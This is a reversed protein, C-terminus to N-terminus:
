GYVAVASHTVEQSAAGNKNLHLCAKPRQMAASGLRFFFTLDLLSYSKHCCINHLDVAALDKILVNHLLAQGASGVLAQLVGQVLTSRQVDLHCVDNGAHHLAPSHLQTSGVVGVPELGQGADGTLLMIAEDAGHAVAGGDHLEGTLLQYAALGISGGEGGATQASGALCAAVGCPVGGAVGKHLIIHQADGSCEDAVGALSQIFLSGQQTGHVCQGTLGDADQLQEALIHVVDGGGNAGLLLVEQDLFLVVLSTLIQDEGAAGQEASGRGLTLLQLLVVEADDTGLNRREHLFQVLLQPLQAHGGLGLVVLNSGALVLKSGDEIGGVHGDVVVQQGHFHHALDCGLVTQDAQLVLLGKFAHVAAALVVVPGHAGGVLVQQIGTVGGHLVQLEQDEQGGNDLGYILVGIQQAGRHGGRAVIM